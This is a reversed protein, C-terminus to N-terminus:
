VNAVVLFWGTNWTMHVLICPWLLNSEERIGGLVISPVIIMVASLLDRSIFHFLTFLGTTIANTRTIVQSYLIRILVKDGLRQRFGDYLWGRFVWEEVVPACILVIMWHIYGSPAQFSSVPGMFYLGGWVFLAGWLASQLWFGQLLSM